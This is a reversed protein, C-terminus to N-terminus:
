IHILSLVTPYSRIIDKANETTALELEGPLMYNKFRRGSSKHRNKTKGNKTKLVEENDENHKASM